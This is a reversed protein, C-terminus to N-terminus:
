ISALNAFSIQQGCRAALMEMLQEFVVLQEERILTQIDKELFAQKINDYLTLKAVPTTEKILRPFGGWLLYLSLFSDDAQSVPQYKTTKGLLFNRLNINAKSPMKKAQLYELFSFSFLNLRVSRGLLSEKGRKRTIVSASGSLIFKTQKTKDKDYHLKIAELLEPVKQFEDIFIFHRSNYAVTLQKILQFPNTQARQRWPSEEINVFTVPYGDEKLGLSVKQLLTTKGVQRAGTLFIVEPKKLWDKLISTIQRQTYSNLM